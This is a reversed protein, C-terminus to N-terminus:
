LLRAGEESLMMEMDVARASGRVARDISTVVDLHAETIAEQEHRTVEPPRAVASPRLPGWAAVVPHLSFGLGAYLATAKPRALV